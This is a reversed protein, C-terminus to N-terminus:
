RQEIGGKASPSTLIGTEWTGDPHLAFNDILRTSGISVALLLLAPSRLTELLQFSMADRVEAYELQALREGAVIDSMAQIVARPGAAPQDAFVSRGAQLARYLVSAARRSSPDLYSNRSSLALGDAERVTALVRLRTSLHFDKVMHAIVAVQQADKQGFYALHPQVIQFLKLVVTSVGRFHGPRSAAEAAVALPGVPEVYTTFGPPYMEEASPTFVSDVGLTELMHLDHELDRPYHELDEHPAFQTPNVFISSVLVANEARARQVLSAHGEHLYGMTPVFGVQGTWQRREHEMEDVTRVVHM